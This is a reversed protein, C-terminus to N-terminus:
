RTHIVFPAKEYATWFLVASALLLGVAPLWVVSREKFVLITWSLCASLILAYFALGLIVLWGVWEM